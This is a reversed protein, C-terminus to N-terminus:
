RSTKSARVKCGRKGEHKDRESNRSQWSCANCGLRWHGGMFLPRPQLWPYDLSFEAKNRIYLCRGCQRSSPDEGHRMWHAADSEHVSGVLDEDQVSFLPSQKKVKGNSFSPLSTIRAKETKARKESCARKESDLALPRKKTEARQHSAASLASPRVNTEALKQSAYALPRIAKKRISTQSEYALPRISKKADVAYHAHFIRSM